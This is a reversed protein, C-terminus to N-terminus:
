AEISRNGSAIRRTYSPLSGSRKMFGAGRSLRRSTQGFPSSATCSCFAKTTKTQPEQGREEDPEVQAPQRPRRRPRAADERRKEECGDHEGEAGDELADEREGFPGGFIEVDIEEPPLDHAEHSERESQKRAHQARAEGSGANGLEHELELTRRGVVEAAGEGAGEAVRRELKGEPQGLALLVHVLAPRQCKRLIAGAARHRDELVLTLRDGRENM